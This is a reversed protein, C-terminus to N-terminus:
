RAGPAYGPSQSAFESLLSSNTGQCIGCTCFLRASVVVPVTFSLGGQGLKGSQGEDAAKPPPNPLIPSRPQREQVWLCESPLPVGATHSGRVWPVDGPSQCWKVIGQPPMGSVHSPWLLSGLIGVPTRLHRRWPSTQHVEVESVMPGHSQTPVM